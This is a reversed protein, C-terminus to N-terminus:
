GKAGVRHGGLHGQWRWDPCEGGPAGMDSQVYGKDGTLWRSIVQCNEIGYGMSYLHERSLGMSILM